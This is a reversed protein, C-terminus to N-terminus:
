PQPGSRTVDAAVVAFWVVAALLFLYGARIMLVASAEVVSRRHCTCM